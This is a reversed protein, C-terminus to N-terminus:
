FVEIILSRVEDERLLIVQLTAIAAIGATPV